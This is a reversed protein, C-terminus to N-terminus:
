VAVQRHQFHEQSCASINMDLVMVAIRRQRPRSVVVVDFGGSEQLVPGRMAGTSSVPPNDHRLRSNAHRRLCRAWYIELLASARKKNRGFANAGTAAQDVFAAAM